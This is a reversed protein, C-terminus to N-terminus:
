AREVSKKKRMNRSFVVFPHHADLRSDGFEPTHVEGHSRIILGGSLLREIVSVIRALDPQEESRGGEKQTWGCHLALATLTFPRQRQRGLLLREERSIIAQLLRFEDDTELCLFRMLFEQAELLYDFADM